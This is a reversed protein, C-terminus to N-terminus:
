GHSKSSFEATLQEKKVESAEVIEAVIDEVVQSVAVSRLEGKEAMKMVRRKIEGRASGGPFNAALM